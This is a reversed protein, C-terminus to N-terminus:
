RAGPILWLSRHIVQPYTDKVLGCARERCAHMVRILRRYEPGRRLIKRGWKRPIGWYCHLRAFGSAAIASWGRFFANRGPHLQCLLAQFLVKRVHPCAEVGHSRADQRGDSFSTKSDEASRPLSVGNKIPTSFMVGETTADLGLKPQTKENIAVLSRDITGYHVPDFLAHRRRSAGVVAGQNRIM